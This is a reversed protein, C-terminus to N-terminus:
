ARRPRNRTRGGVFLALLGVALLIPSVILLEGTESGTVALPPETTTVNRLCVPHDPWQLCWEDLPPNDPTCTSVSYLTIGDICPNVPPWQDCPIPYGYLDVIVCETGIPPTPETTM